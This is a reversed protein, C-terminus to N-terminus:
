ILRLESVLYGGFSIKNLPIPPLRQLIKQLLRLHNLSVDLYRGYM